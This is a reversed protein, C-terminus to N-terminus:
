CIRSATLSSMCFFVVFVIRSHPRAGKGSSDLRLGGFTSFCLSAKKPQSCIPHFRLVQDPISGKHNSRWWELIQRQEKNRGDWARQTWVISFIEKNGLTIVKDNAIMPLTFGPLGTRGYCPVVYCVHIEFHDIVNSLIGGLHGQGFSICQNEYELPLYNNADSTVRNM